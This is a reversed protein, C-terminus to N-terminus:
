SRLERLRTRLDIIRQDLRAIQEDNRRDTLRRAYELHQIARQYGGHLAFYEARALHVAVIDGALGAVEALEYWVDVDNPHLRSQRTLVAQAQDFERSEALAKAYLMSLPENDPNLVLQHSLLQRAQDAKGANILVDAYSALLLLSNPQESHLQDALAIAEAHEGVASLALALGYRAADSDPARTLAGRYTAVALQPTEAFHAQVRTRMLQYELSDDYKQNPYRSAQNRADSIRRETLPHTLLFEPPRRTFRYARQMREFMRAMAKPDMNANIMTNLGIRDAEQERSRSYRLQNAQAAAQATSLAAIGADGGGVAGILIAAVMSALNPLAQSRQEEVGRAFHRQSLHALEHALVSSFEHVDEAYLMLGLNIGVVGGPVAFANIAPDDILLTAQLKEQLESYAALQGIHREVYYKLIPDSSTPMSARIQKLFDEGIKRELSPSILASSADGLEPLKIREASAAFGPLTSAAWLAAGLLVQRGVGELNSQFKSLLKSM